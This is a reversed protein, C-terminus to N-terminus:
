HVRATDTQIVRNKQIRLTVSRLLLWVFYYSFNSM